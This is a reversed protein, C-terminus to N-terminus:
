ARLLSLPIMHLHLFFATGARWLAVLDHLDDARRLWYLDSIVIVFFPFCYFSLDLRYGARM